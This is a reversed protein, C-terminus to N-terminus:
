KIELTPKYCLAHGYNDIRYFYINYIGLNPWTIIYQLTLIIINYTYHIQTTISNTIFTNTNLLLNFVRHLKQSLKYHNIIIFNSIGDINQMQWHMSFVCFEHLKALSEHPGKSSLHCQFLKCTLLNKYERNM